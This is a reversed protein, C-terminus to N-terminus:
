LGCMGSCEVPLDPGGSFSLGLQQLKPEPATLDAERLPVCSRHVFLHHDMNRQCVSGKVRLSDDVQCAREWDEPVAKIRQWECNNHYPCFTCASRPVAHPVIKELYGLCNGRSQYADWLPFIPTTNTRDKEFRAKTRAVRGPEDASLGIIQEIAVDKPIRQRPKLGIIDRRIAREIVDTKYEKTCQRRTIGEDADPDNPDKTFAPISVFRQGTSNMGKSLDDGLRGISKVLTPFAHKTADILWQLHHYVAKPEEQTDAFIAADIPPLEKRAIMLAITTSQVGAGLSLIRFTKVPDHRGLGRRM